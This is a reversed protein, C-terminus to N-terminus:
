NRWEDFIPLKFILEAIQPVIANGLCKLRKVRNKQGNIIRSIGNEWTNNLWVTPYNIKSILNTSIDTWGIPYGMLAEVWDANLQGDVCHAAQLKVATQIDLGGNGHFSKGTGSNTRPTPWLRVIDALGQQDSNPDRHKYDQVTPTPFFKVFRGLGISGDNGTKNVKRPINNETM